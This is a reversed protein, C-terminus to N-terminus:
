SVGFILTYFDSTLLSMNYFPSSAARYLLPALTYLTLMASFTM